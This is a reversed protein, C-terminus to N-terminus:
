DCRYLRFFLNRVYILFMPSVISIKAGSGFLPLSFGSGPAGVLCCADERLILGSLTPTVDSCVVEVKVSVCVLKCSLVMSVDFEAVFSAAFFAEVSEFVFFATDRSPGKPPVVLHHRMKRVHINPDISNTQHIPPGPSLVFLFNEKNWILIGQKAIRVSKREKILDIDIM